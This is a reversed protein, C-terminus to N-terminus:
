ATSVQGSNREAAVTVSREGVSPMKPVERLTETYSVDTGQARRNMQDRIAILTQLTRLFQSQHSRSGNLSTVAPVQLEPASAVVHKADKPATIVIQKDANFRDALTGDGKTLNTASSSASPQEKSQLASVQEYFTDIDKNLAKGLTLLGELLLEYLTKRYELPVARCLEMLLLRADQNAETSYDATVVMNVLSHMAQRLPLASVLVASDKGYDPLTQAVSCLLKLLRDLLSQSLLVSNDHLLNILRLFPAMSQQQTYTYDDHMEFSIARNGSTMKAAKRNPAASKHAQSHDHHHLALQAPASAERNVRVIVKWFENPDPV